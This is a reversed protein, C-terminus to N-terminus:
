IPVVPRNSGNATKPKVWEPDFGQWGRELMEDIAQQLSWDISLAKKRIGDIINQSVTARKTKRLALWDIWSAPKVDDPCPFIDKKDEKNRKGEEQTRGSQARIAGEDAGEDAGQNRGDSQYKEYNCITIISGNTDAIVGLMQAKELRDIFGRARKVSWGWASALSAHSTHLQGRQIPVIQGKAARRSTEKWAATEILWVWAARECYAEKGFFDSDRWGRHLKIYGSMAAWLIGDHFRGM